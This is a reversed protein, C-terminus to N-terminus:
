GLQKTMVVFHCPQIVPRHVYPATGARQYGLKEYLPFLDTRLNVVEITMMEAGGERARAEAADILRRGIGQGWAGPEVALMGFRGGAGSVHVHVCGQLSDQENMALIFVGRGLLTRVDDPSTRDGQVFFREVEYARNVLRAIAAADPPGALRLSVTSNGTV